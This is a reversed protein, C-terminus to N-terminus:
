SSKQKTKKGKGGKKSDTKVNAFVDAGEMTPAIKEDSDYKMSTSARSRDNFAKLLMDDGGDESSKKTQGGEDNVDDDYDDAFILPM